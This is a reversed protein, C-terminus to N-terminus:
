RPQQLQTIRKYNGHDAGRVKNHMNGETTITILETTEHRKPSSMERGNQKATTILEADRQQQSHKQSGHPMWGHESNTPTGKPIPAECAMRLTTQYSDSRAKQVNMTWHVYRRQMSCRTQDNNTRSQQKPAKQMNTQAGNQTKNNNTRCKQNQTIIEHVDIYKWWNQGM